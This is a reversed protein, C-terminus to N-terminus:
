RYCFVLVMRVFLCPQVIFNDCIVMLVIRIVIIFISIIEIVLFVLSQSQRSQRLRSLMKQGISWSECCPHLIYRSCPTIAQNDCCESAIFAHKILDVLSQPILFHWESFVYDLFTQLVCLQLHVDFLAPCCSSRINLTLSPNIDFKPQLWQNICMSTM